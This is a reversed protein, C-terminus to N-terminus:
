IWKGLIFEQSNGGLVSQCGRGVTKGTSIVENVV